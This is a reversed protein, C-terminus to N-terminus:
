RRLTARALASFFLLLILDVVVTKKKRKEEFRPLLSAFHNRIFRTSELALTTQGECEINLTKHVSQALGKDAVLLKEKKGFLSANKRLFAELISGMSGEVLSTAESLADTMDGFKQFGKLLLLKEASEGSVSFDLNAANEALQALKAEDSVKFLAYGSRTFLFLTLLFFFLFVLSREFFFSIRSSFNDRNGNQEHLSWFSLM